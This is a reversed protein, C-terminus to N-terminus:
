FGRMMMALFTARRGVDRSWKSDLMEVAALAWNSAALAALFRKFKLLKTKGLNFSMDILVAQRTPSMAEWTEKSVVSTATNIAEALDESFMVSAVNASIGRDTLNHGYGITLKGASCTYPFARFGEHDAIWTEALRYTGDKM